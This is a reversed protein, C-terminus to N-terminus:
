QMSLKISLHQRLLMAAPRPLQRPRSAPTRPIQFQEDDIAGVVLDRTATEATSLTLSVNLSLIYTHSRALSRYLSLSRARASLPPTRFALIPDGARM